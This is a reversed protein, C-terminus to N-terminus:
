LGLAAKLDAVSLGVSELKQNVTPEPDPQAVHADVAAQLQADTIKSDIATITNTGNLSEMNLGGAKLEADLQALNIKKTTTVM